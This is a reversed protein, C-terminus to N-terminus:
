ILIVSGESVLKRITSYRILFIDDKELKIIENDHTYIQGVDQLVKCFVGKELLPEQTIKIPLIQKFRQLYLTEVQSLKYDQTVLQEIKMLRERLFLRIVYKIRELELQVCYSTFYDSIDMLSDQQRKILEHFKDIIPNYALLEPSYKENLYAQILDPVQDGYGFDDSSLM